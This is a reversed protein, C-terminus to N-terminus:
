PQEELPQVRVCVPAPGAHESGERDIRVIQAPLTRFVASLSALDLLGAASRAGPAIERASAAPALLRRALLAAPAAPVVPGHGDRVVLNWQRARPEGRPTIVQARVHMGGVDSGLRDFRGALHQLGVAHRGADAVLGAAVLRALLGLGLQVLRVEVGARVTVRQLTPYREPWLDLEPVDIFSLWRTRMPRPYRHRALGCWGLAARLSGTRQPVPKGCYDLVSQITALGKPGRYGPSIGVDVAIPLAGDDLLSDLVATTVAPVTSAGSVLVVRARRADADLRCIAAVHCRADALDIYNAGVTIAARALAADRRHFPGAADIILDPRLRALTVALDPDAHDFALPVLDASGFGDCAARARTADRSAALLTLGSLARDAILLRTVRSGFEGSAGVILVRPASM